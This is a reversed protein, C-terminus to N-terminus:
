REVVRQIERNLIRRASFIKLVEVPARAVIGNSFPLSKKEVDM